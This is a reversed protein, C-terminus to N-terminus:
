SKAMFWTPLNRKNPKIKGKVGFLLQESANRFYNGLGINPFTPEKESTKCWTIPLKYNYGWIKMVELASEIFSNPTWLFLASNEAALTHVPLDRIQQFSMTDYHNEAAARTAVNTFRWPPDAYIVRYNLSM